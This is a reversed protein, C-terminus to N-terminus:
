LILSSNDFLRKYLKSIEKKDILHHLFDNLYKKIHRNKMRIKKEEEDEAEEILESPTKDFCICYKFIRSIYQEKTSKRM